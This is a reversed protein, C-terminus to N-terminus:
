NRYRGNINFSNLKGCIKDGCHDTNQYYINLSTKNSHCSKLAWRGLRINDKYTVFKMFRNIFNIDLIKFVM